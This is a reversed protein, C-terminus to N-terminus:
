DGKGIKKRMQLTSARSKKWKKVTEHHKEQGVVVEARAGGRMSAGGGQRINGLAKGPEAEKPSSIIEGRGREQRGHAFGQVNRENM